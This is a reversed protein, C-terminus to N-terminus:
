QLFIITQSTFPCEYCGIDPKGVLRARGALDLAGDMWPLLAGNNRLPSGSGSAWDCGDFDKFLPDGSLCADLTWSAAADTAFEPALCHSFVTGSVGGVDRQTEGAYNGWVVTNAISSGAASAWLGVAYDGQNFANSVVTCNEVIGPFLLYIGAGYNATATGTTKGCNRAVLTNRIVPRPTQSQSVRIGVGGFAGSGGSTNNTVVCRDIVVGGVKRIPLDTSNDTMSNVITIGGCYGNICSGGTAVCDVLRGSAMGILALNNGSADRIVCNTALADAGFMLIGSNFNNGKRNRLTLDALVAGDHNLFVYYGNANLRTIEPGRGRIKMASVVAIPGGLPINGDGVDILAPSLVFADHINNAATEPTAYPM